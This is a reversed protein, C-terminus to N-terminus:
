VPPRSIHPSLSCPGKGQGWKALDVRKEQRSALIQWLMPQKTLGTAVAWKHKNCCCNHFSIWHKSDSSEPFQHNGRERTVTRRRVRGPSTVCGKKLIPLICARSDYDQRESLGLSGGWQDESFHFVFFGSDTLWENTSQNKSAKVESDQIWVWSTHRQKSDMYFSLLFYPPVLCAEGSGMLYKEPNSISISSLECPSFQEEELPEEVWNLLPELPPSGLRSAWLCCRVAVAPDKSFCWRVTRHNSAQSSCGAM